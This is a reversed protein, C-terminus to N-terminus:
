NDSANSCECCLGYFTTSFNQISVGCEREIFGIINKDVFNRGKPIDRIRFCKKCIFHSHESMDADFREEGNIIGVSRALDNEKFISLNRYVTGLSLDPMKVRLQEYVWEASPHVDTSALTEYIAERKASFNRKM